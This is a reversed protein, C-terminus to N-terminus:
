PLPSLLPNHVWTMMDRDYPLTKYGGVNGPARLRPRDGGSKGDKPKARQKVHSSQCKANGYPRTKYGGVSAKRIPEARENAAVSRSEVSVGHAPICAGIQLDSCSRVGGNAEPVPWASYHCRQHDGAM